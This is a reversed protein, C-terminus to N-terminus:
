LKYILVNASPTTGLAGPYSALATSNDATLSSDNLMKVVLTSNAVVEIILDEHYMKPRQREEDSFSKVPSASVTPAGGASNYFIGFQTNSYGSIANRYFCCSFSLRYNGAELFTILGAADISVDTTAQASGFKLQLATDLASPSQGATTTGTMILEYASDDVWAVGSGTSSLLQGSTGVSSAGDQVVGGLTIANLSVTHIFSSTGSPGFTNIGNLSSNGTISLSGILSINNSATNGATLVETLTPTSPTPALAAIDEVRFNKTKNADSVDTGIVIDGAVPPSVIGYSSIKSM